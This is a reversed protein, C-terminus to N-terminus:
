VVASLVPRFGPTPPAITATPKTVACRALREPTGLDSWGCAAVPLVRLADSSPELIDRSFDRTELGAYAADVAGTSRDGTRDRAVANSLQELLRPLRRRYLDLLAAARAVFIFSNWLGGGRQLASAVPLPPKEVFREVNGIGAASIRQPLIWGLETDPRDPSVGLLVVAETERELADFARRIAARLTDEREVYHDSPLVVVRADRDRAAITLLPLLIGPATGRNLPQVVVNDGPLSATDHLWWRSHRAAVVTVVRSADAVAFAREITEELLTPGGSVSCFQKPTARGSADRTLHGLRAGDGAALVLAWRNGGPGTRLSGDSM